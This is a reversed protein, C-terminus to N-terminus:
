LVTADAPGGGRGLEHAADPRHERGPRGAVAVAEGLGRRDGGEVAGGVVLALGVAHTSRHRHALHLHHSRVVRAAPRKRGALDALDPDLSRVHHLAVPALGLRGGLGEDRAPQAGAVEAAEVVLAEDVDHVAGLVHHDAAALVHVADLDLAREVVVRRHHIGGHDPDRVAHEALLDARDDRHLGARADRLLLEAGVHGRAEGGELHRDLDLDPALRKRAVGVALEHLPLEARLERLLPAASCSRDFERVAPASPSEIFYMMGSPSSGPAPCLLPGTMIRARLPMTTSTTSAPASAQRVAGMRFTVSAGTGGPSVASWTRSAIVRPASARFHDTVSAPGPRSTASRLRRPWWAETYM